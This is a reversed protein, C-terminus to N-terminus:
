LTRITQHHRVCRFPRRRAVVEPPLPDRQGRVNERPSYLRWYKERKLCMYRHAAHIAVGPNPRKAMWVTEFLRIGDALTNFQETDLIASFEEGMGNAKRHPKGGWRARMVNTDDGVLMNPGKEPHATM